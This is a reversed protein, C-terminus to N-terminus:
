HNIELHIRMASTACVPQRSYRLNAVQSVARTDFWAQRSGTPSVASLVTQAVFRVHQEAQIKGLYGLSM